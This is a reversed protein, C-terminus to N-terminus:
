LKYQNSDELFVFLCFVLFILKILFRGLQLLKIALLQQSVLAVGLLLTRFAVLQYFQRPNSIGETWTPSAAGRTGAREEWVAFFNQVCRVPVHPRRSPAPSAMRRCSCRLRRAGQLGPLAVAPLAAGWGSAALPLPQRCCGGERSGSQGLSGATPSQTM